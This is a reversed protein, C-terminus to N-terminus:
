LGSSSAAKTGASISFHALTTFVEPAFISHSRCTPADGFRRMSLHSRLSGRLVRRRVPAANIPNRGELSAKPECRLILRKPPHGRSFVSLCVIGRMRQHKDAERWDRYEGDSRGRKSRM